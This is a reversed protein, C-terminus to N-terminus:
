TGEATSGGASLPCYLEGCRFRKVDSKIALKAKKAVQHTGLEDVDAAAAAAAEPEVHRWIDSQLKVPLVYDGDESARIPDIVASAGGM